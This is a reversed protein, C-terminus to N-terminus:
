YILKWIEWRVNNMWIIRLKRKDMGCSVYGLGLWGALRYVVLLNTENGALVTCQIRAAAGASLELTTLPVARTVIMKMRWHAPPPAATATLAPCDIKYFYYCLMKDKDVKGRQVLSFSFIPIDHFMWFSGLLDDTFAWYSETYTFKLHWQSYM